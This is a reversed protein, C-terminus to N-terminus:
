RAALEFYRSLLEAVEEADRSRPAGHLRGPRRLAGLRPPAGGHTRSHGRAVATLQSCAGDRVRRLVEGPENAQRLRPLSALPPDASAASSAAPRSKRCRLFCLDLRMWPIGAGRFRCADTRERQSRTIAIATERTSWILAGPPQARDRHQLAWRGDKGREAVIRDRARPWVPLRHQREHQEGTDAGHECRRVGPHQHVVEGDVRQARPKTTM